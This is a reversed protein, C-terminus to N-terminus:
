SESCCMPSFCVTASTQKRWLVPFFCVFLGRFTGESSNRTKFTFMQVIYLGFANLSSRDEGRAQPPTPHPPTRLSRIFSHQTEAPLRGQHDVEHRQHPHDDVGGGEVQPVQPHDEDGGSSQPLESASGRNNITEGGNASSFQLTNLTFLCCCVCM